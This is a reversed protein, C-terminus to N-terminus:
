LPYNLLVSRDGNEDKGIELSDSYIFMCVFGLDTTTKQSFKLYADLSSCNQRAEIHTPGDYEEVETVQRTLSIKYITFGDIYNPYDIRALGFDSKLGIGAIGSASFLSLFERPYNKEAYNPAFPNSPFVSEGSVFKLESLRHTGFYFNSKTIDGANFFTVM